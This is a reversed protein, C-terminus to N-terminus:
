RSIRDLLAPIEAEQLLQLGLRRDSVGDRIRYSYTARGDVLEGEFCRLRIRGTAHLSEALEVLHSSFVFGSGPAKAFAAIVAESADLADKVNTGKFVEDFLVLCRRGEALHEAAERVRLVESYFFSLGARLNDAPNLSALLVDAPTMRLRRAPVGMGVQALLVALGVTRLYTTKGAMNPGTLFVTPTDGGLSIPNSVADPVFPHSLGEGELLYEDAEVIEPLSWGRREMTRAMTRLADLEGVCAVLRALRDGHEGRLIPDARLATHLSPQDGVAGLASAIELIESGLDSLLSPAGTSLSRALEHGRRLLLATAGVGERLEACLEPERLRLWPVRIRDALAARHPGLEINSALYSAVAEVVGPEVLPGCWEHMLWRVAEQTEVISAADRHPAGLRRRLAVRGVTTEPAEFLAFVGGRGSADDFVELDRLTVHDLVM